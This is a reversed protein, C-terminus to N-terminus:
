HETAPLNQLYQQLPLLLILSIFAEMQAKPMVALFNFPGSPFPATYIGNTAFSLDKTLIQAFSSPALAMIALMFLKLKM